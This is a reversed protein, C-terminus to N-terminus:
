RTEGTVDPPRSLTIGVLVELNKHWDAPLSNPHDLIPTWTHKVKSTINPKKKKSLALRRDINLRTTMQNLWKATITRQPYTTGEITRECRLTWILYASESLLIRKLRAIGCKKGTTVENDNDPNPQISGCGLIHGQHIKPWNHEDDPWKQKVLNWILRTAPHACEILIHDLTELENPCHTCNARHEYTPIKSWFDGTRLAGSM